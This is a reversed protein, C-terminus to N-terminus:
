PNYIKVCVATMDDKAEGRYNKIAEELLNNALTQPNKTTQTLLFDVADTNSFFADTIGDSLLLLIDGSKLQLSHMTPQIQDLIGLPLCDNELVKVQNDSIIFGCSAGIKISDCSGTHLDFIACDLTAFSEEACASLIKNALDLCSERPLGSKYFCEFLSIATQSNKYAQFGSGMGDCLSVLFRGDNIKTLSHCDGCVSAGEKCRCAVGFCADFKPAQQFIAIMGDKVIRKDKLSIPQNFATSLIKSVKSLIVKEDNFLIHLYDGTHILQICTIGNEHLANVATKEKTPNFRIQSAFDCGFQSLTQAVANSQLAALQKFKVVQENKEAKELYLFILRNIEYIM